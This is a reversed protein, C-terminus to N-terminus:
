KKLNRLVQWRPDIYEADDRDKKESKSSFVIEGEVWPDDQEALSPHLRKMPLALGIFEYLLHAVNIKQTGTNITFIDESIEEEDEGYQYIIMKDLALPYDFPELSRDCELQVTGNIRFDVTILTPQKDLTIEVNLDGKDVLAKDFMGFFSDDLHYEYTYTKNSLAFIDIDFQTFGDMMVRM